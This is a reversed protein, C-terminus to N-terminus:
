HSASTFQHTEGTLRPRGRPRGRPGPPQRGLLAAEPLKVRRVQDADYRDYVRSAYRPEDPLAVLVKGRLAVYVPLVDGSPVQVLTGRKIREGALYGTWPREVRRPRRALAAAAETVEALTPTASKAEPVSALIAQNEAVIEAQPVQSHNGAKEATAMVANSGGKKGTSAGVSPLLPVKSNVPRSPRRVQSRPKPRTAFDATAILPGHRVLVRVRLLERVAGWFRLCLCRRQARAEPQRAKALGNIVRWLGVPSNGHRRMAHMFPLALPHEVGGLPPVYVQPASEPAIIIDIVAYSSM